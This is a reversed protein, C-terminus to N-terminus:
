KKKFKFEGKIVTSKLLDNIIKLGIEEYIYIYIYTHVSVFLFHEIINLRKINQRHINRKNLEQLRRM